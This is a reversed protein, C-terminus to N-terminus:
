FLQLCHPLLYNLSKYVFCAIQLKIIDYVNLLSMQKFLPAAHAKRHSNTLMLLCKKQIRYDFGDSERGEVCCMEGVEEALFRPNIKSQLKDKELCIEERDLM